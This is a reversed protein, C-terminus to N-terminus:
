RTVRLLIVDHPQVTFTVANGTTNGSSGNWIDKFQWSGELGWAKWGPTIGVPKEGRNLLCFAYGGDSLNKKWIEFLGDDRIKVAAKGAPDQDIAIAGPNTLIARTQGTMRRIDNGAMLPSSLMCWLSFHAREEGPTLAGNGVELMDMDNWHGPGAYQQLGEQMDLIILVGGGWVKGEKADPQTWNNRIDGTTRWLHGVDEAWLWPKSLGWECISFVMPRGARYIADRMLTYSEIANQEGTNCWDYKVYDVGWSAYTRADQYEYGRSGPRGQCTMRGADSYIGFKLGRRHVYDILARMGSPFKVSDAIITGDDQRGTQWCDDIVVYTYGADRMDSTVMADAIERIVTENIGDCNFFNWSNWGMPPKEALGPFKQAPVSANALFLLCTIICAYRM